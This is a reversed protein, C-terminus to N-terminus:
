RPDAPDNVVFQRGHLALGQHLVIEVMEGYGLDGSHPAYVFAGDAARQLPRFFLQAGNQLVSPQVWRNKKVKGFFTSYYSLNSNITGNKM